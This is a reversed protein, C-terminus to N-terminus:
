SALATAETSNAESQKAYEEDDLVFWRMCRPVGRYYVFEGLGDRQRFMEIVSFVSAIIAFLLAACVWVTHLWPYRNDLAISAL